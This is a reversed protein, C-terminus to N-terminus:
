TPKTKNQKQSGEPSDGKRPNKKETRYIGLLPIALDHPLQINFMKLFHWATKWSGFWKIIRDTIYSTESKEM